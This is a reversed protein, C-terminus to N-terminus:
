GVRGALYADMVSSASALMGALTRQEAAAAGHPDDATIDEPVGDDELRLTVTQGRLRVRLELELAALEFPVLEATPHECSCAADDAALAPATTTDDAGPLNINTM